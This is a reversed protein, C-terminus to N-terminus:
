RGHPPEMVPLSVSADIFREVWAEVAEASAGEPPPAELGEAELLPVILDLTLPDSAQVIPSPAPTEDAIDFSTSDAARPPPRSPPRVRDNFARERYYAIKRGRVPPMGAKLVILDDPPLQMLEQPLMLARRQDSESVSRHGRSLGTPRSRSPSRVTTYGLRESLDNALRLEKPAFAIEGAVDTDDKADGVPDDLAM